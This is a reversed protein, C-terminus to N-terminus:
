NPGVPVVAPAPPADEWTLPPEGDRAYDWGPVVRRGQAAPEVPSADASATFIWDRYSRAQDFALVNDPDAAKRRIPRRMSLSYVGIIGGMPDRVLGWDAQGTMPDAYLRRLFRQPVLRDTDKGLLQELATPWPQPERAHARAYRALAVRYEHGVFLLQEEKDRQGTFDWTTAAAAAMLGMLMILFMLGLFTFGRESARLRLAPV